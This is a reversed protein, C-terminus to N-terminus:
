WEQKENGFEENGNTFSQKKVTIQCEAKTRGNDAYVSIIVKGENNATVLGNEDVSAVWSDQSYWQLEKNDANTPVITAKLQATDGVYLELSTKNLQIDSVFIVGRQQVKIEKKVNDAYLTIIAQRAESSGNSSVEFHLQDTKLARTNSQSVWGANIAIEYDVNSEAKVDFSGGEISFSFEDKEVIIVDLQKQTVVAKEKLGFKEDSFVIEGKREDYTNNEAVIFEYIIEDDSITSIGSQKIWGDEPLSIILDVNSKVEISIDGGGTNLAFEKTALTLVPSAGAQYVAVTESFGGSNITIHGERKETGNNVMVNFVLNTTKMARTDAQTIWDVDTIVSFDINAKVEVSIKGGESDVEIKDSSITLADKQKQTVNISQSATGGKITITATRDDPTDNANTTITLTSIGAGGSSPSISLWDNNAVIATWAKSATFTVTATGGETNFVPKTNETAPIEIKDAVPTPTPTPTTPDDDGGCSSICFAILISLLITGTLRLTKM